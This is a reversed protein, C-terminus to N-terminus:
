SWFVAPCVDDQGEIVADNHTWSAIRIKIQDDFRRPMARAMVSDGVVKLNPDMQYAAQM